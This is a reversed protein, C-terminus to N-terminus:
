IRAFCSYQTRDDVALWRTVKAPKFGYRPLKIQITSANRFTPLGRAAKRSTRVPFGSPQLYGKAGVSEARM